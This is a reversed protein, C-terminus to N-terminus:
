TLKIVYGWLRYTGVCALTNLTYINVEKQKYKVSDSVSTNLENSSNQMVRTAFSKANLLGCPNNHWLVCALWGYNHLSLNYWFLFKYYVPYCKYDVHSYLRLFQDYLHICRVLVFPLPVVPGLLYDESFQALFQFIVIRFIQLYLFWFRGGFIFHMFKRHRESEFSGGLGPWFFVSRSKNQNPKTKHCILCTQNLALDEKYM